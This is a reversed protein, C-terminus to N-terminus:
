RAIGCTAEFLKRDEDTFAPKQAGVSPYMISSPDADHGLGLAHGMEHALILTLDATDYFQFVDIRTGSANKTYLGTTFEERTGFVQNYTNVTLNLDSETRNLTGAVTNISGSLASLANFRKTLANKEDNLDNQNNKLASASKQLSSQKDNLKAYEDPPAGGRANWKAVSTEYSSLQDAYEKARSEYSALHKGYLAASADYAAKKQDFSKRSAEYEDRLKEYAAKRADINSSVEKSSDTTEQRNDFVLNVPMADSGDSVVFLDRGLGSEWIASADRLAGSLEEPSIHFRPDISGVRYAIPFRCSDDLAPIVKSIVARSQSVSPAKGTKIAYVIVFSSILVALSLVLARFFRFLFSM